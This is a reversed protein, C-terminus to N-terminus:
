GRRRGRRRPIGLYRPVREAYRGYEDAFVSRLHEEETLVMMHCIVAYLVVWGVTHWSPWYMAYGIVALASGVTQPNRSVGYLGSRELAASSLGHLRRIGLRAMAILMIGLGVVILVRASARLVPDVPSASAASPWDVYTFCAWLFFVLYELLVSIPGLRGRERYDRRVFVRFTAFAVVILLCSSILYLRPSLM